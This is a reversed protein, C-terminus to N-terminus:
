SLGSVTESPLGANIVEFKRQPDRCFLFLEFNDVYEGSYTISDGLFVIRQVGPLFDDADRLPLVAVTALLLALLRPPFHMTGDFFAAAALALAPAKREDDRAIAAAPVRM